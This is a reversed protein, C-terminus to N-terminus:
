MFSYPTSRIQRSMRRLRIPAPVSSIMSSTIPRDYPSHGARASPWWVAPGVDYVFAPVIISRVVLTDLLVGVGIVFGLQALAVLPLVGLVAFTGALVLGASTIVAGTAALGRTM